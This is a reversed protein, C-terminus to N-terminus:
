ASRSVIGHGFCLVRFFLGPFRREFRRFLFPLRFLVLFRTPSPSGTPRAVLALEPSGDLAREACSHLVL